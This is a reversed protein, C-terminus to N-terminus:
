QTGSSPSGDDLESESVKHESPNFLKALRSDMENIFYEYNAGARLDMELLASQHAYVLMRRLELFTFLVKDLLVAKERDSMDLFAKM